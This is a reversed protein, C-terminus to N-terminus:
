EWPFLVWTNKSVSEGVVIRNVHDRWFAPPQPSNFNINVVFKDYLVFVDVQSENHIESTIREAVCNMTKNSDIIDDVILIHKRNENWERLTDPHLWQYVEVEQQQQGIKTDSYSRVGVHYIPVTPSGLATRLIRAPIDGGGSVAVICDPRNDVAKFKHINSDILHHVHEYSVNEEPM